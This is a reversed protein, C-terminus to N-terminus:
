REELSARLERRRFLRAYVGDRELLEAHSGQEVLRGRDLVLIRDMGALTTLRHSVLLITRGEVARDLQELIARETDADVSSLSDDLVLIPRDGVVARALTARQRQGGSLTFGREGVTTDLGRPLAEVDAGLHAVRVSRQLAEETAAEAGFLINDRISRSFLLAEQPVYGISARVRAVPVETVDRGGVFITGPPVPYVRALLAVLTSKGAGVPGVIAVREGRRITVSLGDLAPATGEGASPYRFTLDRIELDGVLPGAEEGAPGAGEPVGVGGAPPIDPTEALVEELRDLATAGRQLTNIIWGFAITPWVLLGLYANFAVFDGFSIRGEIVFRGGAYLVILTGVGTVTGILALMGGRIRAMALNRRRFEASLEAFGAIEREEQVYTKVQQIGSINEQARNGIEALQEQVAMSRAFVKRSLRNVGFFLVPYTAMSIATLVPDIQLLLVLVAAYVVITNLFNMVGPGFFNQLLQIDHVGRSMVDGTRWRDYFSASLRQLHAFFRQRADHAIRRSSGLMALRSGTRVVSQALAVGIMAVAIWAVQALPRGAEIADIADRLLWPIWLSLGNTALLLLFGFAYVGAYPRAYGALRALRM